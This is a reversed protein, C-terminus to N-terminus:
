GGWLKRRLAAERETLVGAKALTDFRALSARRHTEADPGGAQALHAEVIARFRVGALDDESRFIRDALLLEDEWAARAAARDGQAHAALGLRELAAALALAVNADEPAADALTVRLSVSESFAARASQNAGRNLCEDGAKVLAAALGAAFRPARASADYALRRFEVARAFADQARAPSNMRAIEGLRDWASAADALLDHNQSSSRAGAEARARAADAAENAAVVDGQRLAHDAQDLLTHILFRLPAEAHPSQALLQEALARAQILSDTASSMDGLAERLAARKRWVGALEWAEHPDAAALKVRAQLAKDMAERAQDGGGRALEAEAALMWADSLTARWHPEDKETVALAEYRAIAEGTRRRASTPKDADLEFAALRLEADAIDAALAPPEGIQAAIARLMALAGEASAHATARDGNAADLEALRGRARAYWRAATPNARDRALLADEIRLTMEYAERARRAEGTIRAIEGLMFAARARAAEDVAERLVGEAERRAGDLDGMEAALRAAALRPSPDLPDLRSALALARRALQPEDREALAAALRASALADPGGAEASALLAAAETSVRKPRNRDM